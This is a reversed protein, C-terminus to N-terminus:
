VDGSRSKMRSGWPLQSTFLAEARAHTGIISAISGPPQDVHCSSSYTLTCQPCGLVSLDRLEVRPGPPRPALTVAAAAWM